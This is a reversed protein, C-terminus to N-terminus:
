WDNPLFRQALVEAKFERYSNFWAKQLTKGWTKGLQQITHGQEIWRHWDEAHCDCLAIGTGAEWAAPGGCIDCKKDYPRNYYWPIYTHFRHRGSTCGQAVQMPISM